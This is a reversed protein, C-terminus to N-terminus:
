IKMIKRLKQTYFANLSVILQFFSMSDVVNLEFPISVPRRWGRLGEEVMSPGCHIIYNRHVSIFYEMDGLWPQWFDPHLEFAEISPLVERLFVPTQEGHVEEHKDDENGEQSVANHFVKLFDSFLM